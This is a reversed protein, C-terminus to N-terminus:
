VRESHKISISEPLKSAVEQCLLPLKDKMYALRKADLEAGTHLSPYSDIISEINKRIDKTNKINNVKLFHM